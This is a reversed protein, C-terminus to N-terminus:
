IPNLWQALLHSGESKMHARGRVLGAMNLSLGLTGDAFKQLGLGGEREPDPDWVFITNNGVEIEGDLSRITESDIAVQGKQLWIGLLAANRKSIYRPGRWVWGRLHGPTWVTFSEDEDRVFAVAKIQDPIIFDWAVFILETIEIQRQTITLPLPPLKQRLEEDNL